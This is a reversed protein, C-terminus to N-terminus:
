CWMVKTGRCYHNYIDSLSCVSLFHLDLYFIMLGQSQTNLSDIYRNLIKMMAIFVDHSSM